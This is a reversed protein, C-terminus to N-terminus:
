ALEVDGYRESNWLSEILPAVAPSRADNASRLDYLELVEIDMVQTDLTIPLEVHGVYNSATARIVVKHAPASTSFLVVGSLKFSRGHRFDLCEVHFKPDRPGLDDVVEHRGVTHSHFNPYTPISPIEFGSEAEPARPGHINVSIPRNNFHMGVGVVEVVLNEAQVSGTNKILLEFPAQNFQLELLDKYRSLYNPVTKEVYEAYRRDLSNDYRGFLALDISQVLKPNATIIADRLAVHEEPKMDRVRYVQFPSAPLIKFSLEMKPAAGELENVRKKLRTIEKQQATPEVPPLWSAPLHQVALGHRQAMLLPNLDQSIVKHAPQWQASATVIEAIFRADGESPDLDLLADWAVRGVQAVGMDVRIAGSAIVIPSPSAVLSAALRNFERARPGVRGDRKKSDVEKFVTPMILILIPGSSIEQWPLGALPLAELILNTDPVVILEYDGYSKV